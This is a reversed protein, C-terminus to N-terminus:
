IAFLAISYLDLLFLYLISLVTPPPPARTLSIHDKTDGAGTGEKILVPKYGPKEWWEHWGADQWIDSM